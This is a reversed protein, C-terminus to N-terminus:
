WRAVVDEVTWKATRGVGIMTASAYGTWGGYGVLACGQLSQLSRSGRHERLRRMTVADFLVRDDVDIQLLKPQQLLKV